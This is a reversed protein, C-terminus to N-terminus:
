FQIMVDNNPSWTVDERPCNICSWSLGTIFFNHIHPLPFNTSYKKHRTSMAGNIFAYNQWTVKKFMGAYGGHHPVVMIHKKNRDMVARLLQNYYHDGPLIVLNDNNKFTLVIGSNNPRKGCSSRYIDLYPLNLVRFLDIRKYPSHAFTILNLPINFSVLRSLVNQAELTNPINSPAVFYRINLLEDDSLHKILNYHDIDWHSLVLIYPSTVEAHEVITRKTSKIFHTDAGMDYILKFDGSVVENWNGCGVDRVILKLDDDSINSFIPDNYLLSKEISIENLSTNMNLEKEEHYLEKDIKFSHPKYLSCIISDNETFIDEVQFNRFFSTDIKYWCSEKFKNKLFHLNRLVILSKNEYPIPRINLTSMVESLENQSQFDIIAEYNKEKYDYVIKEIYIYM